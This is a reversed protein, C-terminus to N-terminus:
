THEESRNTPDFHITRWLSVYSYPPLKFGSPLVGIVAVPKGDLVVRRGVVDNAGGFRTQWMEYSLVTVASETGLLDSRGFLRGLIPQVGLARFLEPTVIGGDVTEPGDGTTLHYPWSRASGITAITKSRAAIDEAHPPSIGCWDSRAGPYQECITILRAANPFPLPRLVIGDVIGYITTTAGIGLALTLVATITFAVHSRLSRVAHRLDAVLTSM